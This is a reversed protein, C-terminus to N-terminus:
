EAELQKRYEELNEAEPPYQMNLKKLEDVILSAAM